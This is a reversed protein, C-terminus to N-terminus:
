SNEQLFHHITTMLKKYEGRKILESQALMNLLSAHQQQVNLAALFEASLSENSTLYCLNFADCFSGYLSGLMFSRAYRSSLPPITDSFPLRHRQDDILLLGYDSLKQGFTIQASEGDERSFLVSTDCWLASVPYNICYKEVQEALAQAQNGNTAPLQIVTMGQKKMSRILPQSVSHDALLLGEDALRLSDILANQLTLWSGCAIHEPSVLFRREHALLNALMHRLSFLGTADYDYPQLKHMHLAARRTYHLSTKQILHQISLAPLLPEQHHMYANQAVSTTVRTEAVFTGRKPQTYILGQASLEEYVRSVTKRNIRLRQAIDRSSPLASGALWSGGEIMRRFHGILQQHISSTSNKDLVLSHHWPRLM